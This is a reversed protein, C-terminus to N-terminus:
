AVKIGGNNHIYGDGDSNPQLDLGKGIGGLTIPSTTYGNVGATDGANIAVKADNGGKEQVLIIRGIGRGQGDLTASAPLTVTRHAVTTDIRVVQTGCYVSLTVDAARVDVYYIDVDCSEPYATENDYLLSRITVDQWLFLRSNTDYIDFWIRAYAYTAWDEPITDKPILFLCEGSAPTVGVITGEDLLTAAEPSGVPKGYCYAKTINTLDHYKTRAQDDYLKTKIQLSAGVPIISPLATVAYDVDTAGTTGGAGLQFGAKINHYLVIQFDPYDPM